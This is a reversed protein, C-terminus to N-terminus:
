DLIDTYICTYILTSIKYGYSSVVSTAPSLAAMNFLNNYKWMYTEGRIICNNTSVVKNHMNYM